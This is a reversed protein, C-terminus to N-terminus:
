KCYKSRDANKCSYKKPPNKAGKCKAGEDWGAVKDNKTFQVVVPNCKGNKWYLEYAIGAGLMAWDGKDTSLIAWTPAGLDAIVKARTLNAKLGAAKKSLPTGALAAVGALLLIVAVLVATRKM